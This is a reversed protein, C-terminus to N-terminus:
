TDAGSQVRSGDDGSGAGVNVPEYGLISLYVQLTQGRPLASFGKDGNGVGVETILQNLIGFLHSDPSVAVLALKLEM